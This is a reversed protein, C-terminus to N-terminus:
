ITTGSRQSQLGLKTSSLPLYVNPDAKNPAGAESFTTKNRKNLNSTITLKWNNINEKGSM